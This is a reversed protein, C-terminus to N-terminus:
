EYFKRGHTNNITRPTRLDNKAFNNNKNRIIGPRPRGQRGDFYGVTKITRPRMPSTHRGGSDSRFVSSVTRFTDFIDNRFVGSM